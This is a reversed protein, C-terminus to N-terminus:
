GYTEVLWALCPTIDGLETIYEKSRESGALVQISLAGGDQTRSFLVACGNDTISAIAARMSDAPGGSWSISKRNGKWKGAGNGHIGQKDTNGM